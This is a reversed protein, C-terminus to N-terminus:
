LPGLDVLSKKKKKPAGISRDNWLFTHLLVPGGSCQSRWRKKIHSAHSILKITSPIFVSRFKPAMLKYFQEPFVLTEIGSSRLDSPRDGPQPSSAGTRHSFLSPQLSDRTVALQYAPLVFHADPTVKLLQTQSVVLIIFSVPSLIKNIYQLWLVIM